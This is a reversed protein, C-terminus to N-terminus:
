PRVIRAACATAGAANPNNLRADLLGVWQDDRM